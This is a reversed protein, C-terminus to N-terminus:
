RFTRRRLIGRGAIDPLRARWRSGQVARPTRGMECHPRSPPRADIDHAAQGVLPLTVYRLALALAAPQRTRLRVRPLRPPPNPTLPRTVAGGLWSGSARPRWAAAGGRRATLGPPPTDALGAPVRRPQGPAHRHRRLLALGSPRFARRCAFWDAVRSGSVAPPSFASNSSPMSPDSAGRWGTRRCGPEDPHELSEMSGAASILLRMSQCSRVSSSAHRGNLPMTADYEPPSAIPRPWREKWSCQTGHNHNRCCLCSLRTKWFWLEM